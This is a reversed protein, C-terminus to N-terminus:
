ADGAGVRPWVKGYDAVVLRVAEESGVFVPFLVNGSLVSLFVIGTQKVQEMEEDTLRWASVVATGNVFTHLDSVDERGEPAKYIKNAGAFEIAFAM